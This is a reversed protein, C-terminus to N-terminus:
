IQNNEIHSKLQQNRRKLFRSLYSYLFLRDAIVGLPGLPSVWTLTDRMLTGEPHAFFAHEHRMSQFAGQITEDTFRHPYDFEIVQATLRQRIGFHVAEFTVWEGPGIKGAVVGAVAKEQTHAATVCHLSIDRACDFCREQLADIVTEVILTPM